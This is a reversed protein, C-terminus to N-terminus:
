VKSWDIGQKQNQKLYQECERLLRKKNRQFHEDATYEPVFRFIRYATIHKESREGKNNTWNTQWIEVLDPAKEKLEKKYGKLTKVSCGVDKALEEDSRWFYDKDDSCFRQELENLVVYLYKAGISLKSDGENYKNVIARSLQMYYCNNHKM